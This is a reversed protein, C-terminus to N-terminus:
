KKELIFVLIVMVENKSDGMNLRVLSRKRSWGNEVPLNRWEDCCQRNQKRKKEDRKKRERQKDLIDFYKVYAPKTNNEETRESAQAATLCRVTKLHESGSGHRRLTEDGHVRAHGAQARALGFWENEVAGIGVEGGAVTVDGIITEKKWWRRGLQSTSTKGAQGRGRLTSLTYLEQWSAWVSFFFMTEDRVQFNNQVGTCYWKINYCKPSRQVNENLRPARMMQTIEYGLVRSSLHLRRPQWTTYTWTTKVLKVESKWRNQKWGGKSIKCRNKENSCLSSPPSMSIFSYSCEVELKHQQTTTSTVLGHTQATRVLSDRGHHDSQSSPWPTHHTPASRPDTLKISASSNGIVPWQQLKLLVENRHRNQGSFIGELSDNKSVYREYNVPYGTTSKLLLLCVFGICVTLTSVIIRPDSM